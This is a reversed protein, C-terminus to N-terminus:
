TEKAALAAPLPGDYGVNQKEPLIQRPFKRPARNPQNPPAADPEVPFAPTRLASAALRPETQHFDRRSAAAQRGTPKARDRGELRSAECREEPRPNDTQGLFPRFIGLMRPLKLIQRSTVSDCSAPLGEGAGRSLTALAALRTLTQAARLSELFRM